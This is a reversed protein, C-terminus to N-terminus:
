LRSKGLRGHRNQALQALYKRISAFGCHPRSATRPWRLLSGSHGGVRVDVVRGLQENILPALIGGGKGSPPGIREEVLAIEVAQQGPPSDQRGDHLQL